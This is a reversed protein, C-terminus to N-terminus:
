RGLVIWLTDQIKAYYFAQGFVNETDSVPTIIRRIIKRYSRVPVTTEIKRGGFLELEIRAERKHRNIHRICGELGTMPGSIIKVRDNEIVGISLEVIQKEGGLRLLLAIEADSLPILCDRDGLVKTMAPITRLGELLAAADETIMFVYGPFLIKREQHWKGNYKRKVEQCPIFCRELINEPIQKQCMTKINEEKGTFVQVVYWM